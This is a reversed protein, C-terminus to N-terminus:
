QTWDLRQEDSFISSINFFLIRQKVTFSRMFPQFCFFFTLYRFPIPDKARKFLHNFLLVRIERWTWKSEPRRRVRGLAVSCRYFTSTVRFSCGTGDGVAVNQLYKPPSFRSLLCFGDAAMRPFACFSRRRRRMADARVVCACVSVRMTKIKDGARRQLAQSCSLADRGSFL